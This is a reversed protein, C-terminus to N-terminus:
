RAAGSATEDVATAERWREVLREIVRRREISRWIVFAAIAGAANMMADDIDTVRYTFGEILSGALQTLEIGVGFAIAVIVFRRWERLAPWLGPGYIGFPILALANGLLQRFNDWTLDQLQRTITGFPVVNDDSLGRTQRYFEQGAIPIPFITLAVVLTVHTLALLALVKWRRGASRRLVWVGILAAPPLVLYGPLLTLYGDTITM